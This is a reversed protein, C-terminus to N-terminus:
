NAEQSQVEYNSSEINGIMKRAAIQVIEHQYTEEIPSDIAVFVTAIDPRELWYWQKNQISDAPLINIQPVSTTSVVYTYIPNDYSPKNFPDTETVGFDAVSVQKAKVYSKNRAMTSIAIRNRNWYQVNVSLLFIVNDNVSIVSSGTTSSNTHVLGKLAARSQENIDYVRYYKEIFESIALALFEDKENNTFYPNNAKDVLIDLLNRAQALTM